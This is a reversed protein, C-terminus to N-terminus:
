PARARARAAGGRPIKIALDHDPRVDAPARVRGGGVAPFGPNPERDAVLEVVGDALRDELEWFGSSLLRDVAVSLIPIAGPDRLQGVTQIPGGPGLARPQDDPRLPRMRTRLRLDEVLVAVSM